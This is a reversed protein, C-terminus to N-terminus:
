MTTTMKNRKRRRRRRRRPPPPTHLKVTQEHVVDIARLLRRYKSEDISSMIESMM